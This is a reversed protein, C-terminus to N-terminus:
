AYRGARGHPEFALGSRSGVAKAGRDYATAGHVKGLVELESGLSNDSAVIFENRSLLANLTVRVIRIKLICVVGFSVHEMHGARSRAVM